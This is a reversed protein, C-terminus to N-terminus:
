HLAENTTSFLLKEEGFNACINYQVLNDIFGFLTHIHHPLIKEM